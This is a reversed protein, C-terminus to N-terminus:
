AVKKEGMLILNEPKARGFRSNSGRLLNGRNKELLVRKGGCKGKSGSGGIPDKSGGGTFGANSDGEKKKRPRATYVNVNKTGRSGVARWM